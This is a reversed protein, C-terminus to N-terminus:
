YLAMDFRWRYNKSLENKPGWLQFLAIAAKRPLEEAYKWNINVAEIIFQIAKEYEGKHLALKADNLKSAVPIEEVWDSTQLDALIRLNQAIDFYENSQLIDALLPKIMEPTSFIARKALEVRAAIYEPNAKVFANIKMTAEEEPLGEIVSLLDGFSNAEKSPLNEELWKQIQFKPLAGMFESVVEGQYFMKVNPISRIGYQMALQEEEETNVKVLEWLEKQEEALEEIIPGLVRCPGCWPAWFDVVIPKKHSKALVDSHFDM